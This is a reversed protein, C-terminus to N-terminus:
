TRWLNKQFLLVLLIEVYTSPPLHKAFVGLADSTQLKDALTRWNGQNLSM